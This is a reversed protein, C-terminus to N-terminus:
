EKEIIKMSRRLIMVEFFSTLTSSVFFSLRDVFISISTSTSSIITLFKLIDFRRFSSIVVLSFHFFSSSSKDVVVSNSSSSSKDINVFILSFINSFSKEVVFFKRTVITISFSLKDITFSKKLMILKFLKQRNSMIIMHRIFNEYQRILNM